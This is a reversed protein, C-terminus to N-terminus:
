LAEDKCQLLFEDLLDFRNLYQEYKTRKSAPYFIILNDSRKPIVAPPIIFHGDNGTICFIFDCSDTSVNRINFQWANSKKRKKISPPNWENPSSKVDIKIIGNVLIDFPHNHPMLEAVFGNQVLLEKAIREHMAGIAAPSGPELKHRQGGRYKIITSVALEMEEALENNTKDIHARIEKKLRESKASKYGSSGVIQRVRERTIGYKDGIEKLTWLEAYRLRLMEKKREDLEDRSLTEIDSHRAKKLEIKMITRDRRIQRKSKMKVFEVERVESELSFNDILKVVEDPTIRLHRAAQEITLWTENM